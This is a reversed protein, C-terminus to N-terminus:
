LFRGNIRFNLVPYVSFKNVVDIVKGADEGVQEATLVKGNIDKVEPTNWIMVGLDMMFGVRKKKPVARGFSLGVYPRFQNVTMTLTSKGDKFPLRYDDLGLGWDNNEIVEMQEPTFADTNKLNIIDSTGFYAGLTIAVPVRTSRFPYVSLLIDGHGLNAKGRTNIKSPLGLAAPPTNGNSDKLWLEKDYTVKPFLAFGARIQLWDTCTTAIDAGIGPTGVDLGISWHNFLMKGTKAAGSDTQASISLASALGALLIMIKKM